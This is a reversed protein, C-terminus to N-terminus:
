GWQFEDWKMTDWKNEPEEYNLATETITLTEINAQLENLAENPRVIVEDKADILNTLLNILNKSKVNAFKVQYELINKVSYAKVETILYISNVARTPLNVTLWQGSRYGHENTIFNGRLVPMSFKELEALGRDMAQQPTSITSDVIIYEYIGNGGEIAKVADISDTNDVRTLIPVDYRYIAKFVDTDSLKALDLNKIVKSQYNLVFDYGEFHLDDVGLTKAVGNVYVEVSGSKAVQPKHALLFDTQKGDAKIEQTYDDSLYYGGRVLIRNRLQSKDYEIVLNKYKAGDETTENLEHPSTNTENLFFHIDRDMDIYYSYLGGTLKCIEKLCKSLPKYNWSIYSILPGDQVNECSFDDGYKDILDKIIDGALTNTYSEIVLRKNLDAGYDICKVKYKYKGLEHGLLSQPASEIRGTFFKVPTSSPTLRRFFLVEDGQAPKYAGDINEYEFQCTDTESELIDRKTMKGVMNHTQNKGRVILTILDNYTTAPGMTIQCWKDVIYLFSLGQSPKIWMKGTHRFDAGPETESVIKWDAV